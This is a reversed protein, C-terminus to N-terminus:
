EEGLSQLLGSGTIRPILDEIITNKEVLFVSM